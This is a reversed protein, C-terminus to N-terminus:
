QLFFSFFFSILFTRFCFWYVVSSYRKNHGLIQLFCLTKRICDIMVLLVNENNIICVFTYIRFGFMLFLVKFYLLDEKLVTRWVSLLPHPRVGEEGRDRLAEITACEGARQTSSLGKATQTAPCRFLAPLFPKMASSVAQILTDSIHMM